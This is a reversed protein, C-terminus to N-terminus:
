SNKEKEQLDVVVSNAVFDHIAKKKDNGGITLFSLWGLLSKFVFRLLAMPFSIKRNTSDDRRVGIGNYSHGITGGYISTFLPDYFLFVFLFVIVRFYNPVSEFLGFIESAAYMIGIIIISDIFVAKIRSLLTSYLLTM